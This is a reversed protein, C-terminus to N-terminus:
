RKRDARRRRVAGGPVATEALPATDLWAPLGYDQKAKNSPSRLCALLAAAGNNVTFWAEQHQFSYESYPHVYAGGASGVRSPPVWNRWIGAYSALDDAKGYFSVM